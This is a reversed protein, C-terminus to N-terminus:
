KLVYVALYAIFTLSVSYSIVYSMMYRTNASLVAIIQLTHKYNSFMYDYVPPTPLRLM